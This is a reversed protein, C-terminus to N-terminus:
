ESLINIVVNQGKVVLSPQSTVSKFFNMDSISPQLKPM